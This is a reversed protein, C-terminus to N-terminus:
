SRRAWLNNPPFNRPVQPELGEEWVTTSSNLFSPNGENYLASSSAKTAHWEVNSTTPMECYNTTLEPEVLSNKEQHSECGYKIKFFISKFGLIIKNNNNRLAQVSPDDLSFIVFIGSNEQKSHLITWQEPNLDPNQLWIMELAEELTAVESNPIFTAATAPKPLESASMISLQADPWPGYEATTKAIWQRSMEDVCTVIIWGPRHSLGLFRPGAGKIGTKLIEQILARHVETMQDMSMSVTNRVGVRLSGSVNTYNDKVKSVKNPKATPSDDSLVTKFGKLESWPKKCLKIAETASVNSEM